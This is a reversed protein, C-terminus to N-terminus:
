PSIAYMSQETCFIFLIFFIKLMSSKSNPSHFPNTARVKILMMIQQFCLFRCVNWSNSPLFLSVDVIRASTLVFFQKFNVFPSSLALAFSSRWKDLSLCSSNQWFGVRVSSVSLCVFYTKSCITWFFACYFVFQDAFKCIWNAPHIRAYLQLTM